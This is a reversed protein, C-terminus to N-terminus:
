VLGNKVLYERGGQVLYYRTPQNMSISFSIMDRESLVGLWYEAKVLDLSVGQAVQGATAERAKILFQLIAKGEKALSDGQEPAKQKLMEKQQKLATIEEKLSAITQKLEANETMLAIRQEHIAAHESQLNGIMGQIERLEAAFKRDQVSSSLQTVLDVLDKIAGM